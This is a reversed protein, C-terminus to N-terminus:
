LKFLKFNKNSISILYDSGTFGASLIVSESVDSDTIIMKKFTHSLSLDEGTLKTNMRRFLEQLKVKSKLNIIVGTSKRSRKKFNYVEYAAEEYPHTKLLVDIVKNVNDPDCEMELKVEEIKSLHNKKGLLPKAKRNPKFSGMGETRFSCMDYNGIRGAGAASMEAAVLEVFKHPVFVIIKIRNIFEYFKEASLIEKENFFKKISVKM